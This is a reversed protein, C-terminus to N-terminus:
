QRKWVRPSRAPSPKGIRRLSESSTERILDSFSVPQANSLLQLMRERGAENPDKYDVCHPWKVVRTPKGNEQLTLALRVADSAADSDLAVVIEDVPFSLLLQLQESTSLKGLLAVASFGESPNHATVADFTGETVVLSTGHVFNEAGFVLSGRPVGVGNPPNLTKPKLFSHITRAQYSIPVGADRILFCVRDPLSLFSGIEWVDPDVGRLVAYDLLKKRYTDTTTSALRSWQSLDISSFCFSEKARRTPKKLPPVPLNKRKFLDGIWPTSGCKFCFTSLNELRVGFKKKGGCFPCDYNAWERDTHDPKGLLSELAALM